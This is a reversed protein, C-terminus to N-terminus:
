GLVGARKFQRRLRWQMMFVARTIRRSEVCGSALALTNLERNLGSTGGPQFPFLTCVLPRDQYISCRGSKLFPCPYPLFIGGGSFVFHDGGYKQALYQYENPVINIMGDDFGSQCCKCCDGCRVQSLLLSLQESFGEGKVIEVPLVLVKHEDVCQKIMDRVLNQFDRRELDWDIVFQLPKDQDTNRYSM